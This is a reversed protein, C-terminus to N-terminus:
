CIAEKVPLSPSFRVRMGDYAVTARLEPGALEDVRRQVTDPAMEVHMRHLSGSEEIYGRTGLFTVSLASLRDRARQRGVHRRQDVM